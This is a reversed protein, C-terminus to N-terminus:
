KIKGRLKRQTINWESVALAISIAKGGNNVLVHNVCSFQKSGDSYEKLRPLKWCKCCRDTCELYWKYRPDLENM